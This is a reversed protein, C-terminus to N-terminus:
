RKMDEREVDHTHKVEGWASTQWRVNLSSADTAQEISFTKKAGPQLTKALDESWEHIFGM